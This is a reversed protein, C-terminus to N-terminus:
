ADFDLVETETSGAGGGAAFVLAFPGIRITDGPKLERPGDLPEGDIFTGNKSGLDEITARAGKIVLRAHRRSVRPSELCVGTDADRGITQEGEALPFRRGDAVLWCVAGGGPEPDASADGSFAYGFTHVTRLLHSARAPDGIGERVENVVRALSADSVFVGPWIRDLLETKSMARPRAEVLLKLLEFAKPSLHVERAGRHLQRAETNLLCDGFRIRVVGGDL